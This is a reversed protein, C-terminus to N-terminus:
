STPLRGIHTITRFSTEDFGVWRCFADVEDRSTRFANAPSDWDPYGLAVVAGIQEEEPIDLAERILDSAGLPYGLWCTGLGLDHAALLVTTVFPSVDARERRHSVILVAPADFFRYSGLVVFEWLSKGLAEAARSLGARLTTVREQVDPAADAAGPLGPERERARAALREALARRPEGAVVTVRWGQRNSGSPAWRGAELVRAILEKPVPTPLYARISQRSHIAQMTEM